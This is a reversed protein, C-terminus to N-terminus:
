PSENLFKGLPKHKEALVEWLPKPKNNQILLYPNRPDLPQPWEILM